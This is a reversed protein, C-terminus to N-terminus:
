KKIHQCSVLFFLPSITSHQLLDTRNRHKPLHKSRAMSTKLACVPQIAYVTFYNVAAISVYLHMVDGWAPVILTVNAEDFLAMIVDM